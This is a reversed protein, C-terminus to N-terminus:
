TAEAEMKQRYCGVDMGRVNKHAFHVCREPRLMRTGNRPHKCQFVGARLEGISYQCTKWLPLTKPLGAYEMLTQNNGQCHVMVHPRVFRMIGESISIGERKCWAQFLLWSNEDEGKKLYIERRLGSM